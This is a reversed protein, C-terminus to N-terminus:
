QRRLSDKNKNRVSTDTTLGSEGTDDKYADNISTGTPDNNMTGDVGEDTTTQMNHQRDGTDNCAAMGLLIIGIGLLKKM